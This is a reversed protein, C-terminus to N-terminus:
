HTEDCNTAESLPANLFLHVSKRSYLKKEVKESEMNFSLNQGNTVIVGERASQVSFVSSTLGLSSLLCFTCASKKQLLEIVTKAGQLFYLSRGQFFGLSFCSQVFKLKKGGTCKKRVGKSKTRKNTQGQKAGWFPPGGPWCFAPEIKQALAFSTELKADPEQVPKWVWM